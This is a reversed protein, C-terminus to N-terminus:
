RRSFCSVAAVHVPRVPQHHCEVDRQAQGLDADCSANILMSNRLISAALTKAKVLLILAVAAYASIPM